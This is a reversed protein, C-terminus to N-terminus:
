NKWRQLKMAAYHHNFIAKKVAAKQVGENNVDPINIAKCIESVEKGLGPWGKAKGEEYIQKCHWGYAHLTFPGIWSSTLDLVNPPSAQWLHIHSLYKEAAEKLWVNVNPASVQFELWFWAM